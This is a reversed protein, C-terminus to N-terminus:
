GANEGQSSSTVDASSTGPSADAMVSVPTQRDIALFRDLVTFFRPLDIPKTLYDSFGAKMARDIDQPIANASLAVIPTKHHGDLNRIQDFLQYGDMDPLNIDLLILDFEHLAALELGKQATLAVALPIGTHEDLLHEVLRINSPNDEVYLISYDNQSATAIDVGEQMLHQIDPRGDITVEEVVDLEFWFTSGQGPMSYVGISGGMMEVIRKTIVLGIGSGEVGSNEAGLREFSQFLLQQQEESIGKGTDSVSIRWRKRAAAESNITISGGERNYKVANSLLNLMVEKLRTPDAYFVVGKCQDSHYNITINRQAALPMVLSAAEEIMDQCVVPKNDLEMHGAEIKALDLVDNILELLHRGAFLIERVDEQRSPSLEKDFEMLQGFGLIANMPTRLEHSMRALFESKAKNAKEADEKAKELRKRNMRLAKEMLRRETFLSNLSRAMIGLEDRGEATIHEDFNGTDKVRQLAGTVGTIGSVLRKSIFGAVILSALLVLVTLATLLIFRLRMTQMLEDIEYVINENIKDSVMKILEIRRTADQFWQAPDIDYVTQRLRNIAVLAGTDDILVLRDIKRSDTKDWNMGAVMDLRTRYNQLMAKITELDKIEAVSIRALQHYQQLVAQAKSYAANFRGHYVTKGRLLYNKFDHILGGYGILQQLEGLLDAKEAKILITQRMVQVRDAAPDDLFHNLLQRQSPTAIVQRFHRLINEQKAVFGQLQQATKLDFKGLSFIVTLAAREQGAYEQLWLLTSLAEIHQALRVNEMGMSLRQIQELASINTESFYQFYESSPDLGDIAERVLGREELKALLEDNHIHVQHGAKREVKATFEKLLREQNDVRARQQQLEKQFHNGNSALYGASVGRELQLEHVMAVIESSYNQLIQSTQAAQLKHWESHTNSTALVFLLLMPTAVLLILKHKIKLNNAMNSFM